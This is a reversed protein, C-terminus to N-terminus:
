RDFTGQEVRTATGSFGEKKAKGKTKPPPDRILVSPVDLETRHKTKQGFVTSSSM